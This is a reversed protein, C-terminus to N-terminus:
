CTKRICRGQYLHKDAHALDPAWIPGPLMGEGYVLRMFFRAVRQPHVGDAGHDCPTGPPGSSGSGRKLALAREKLEQRSSLQWTDGSAQGRIDGCLQFLRLRVREDNVDERYDSLDGRSVARRDAQTINGLSM